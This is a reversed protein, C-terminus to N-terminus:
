NYRKKIESIIEDLRDQKTNKPVKIFYRKDTGNFPLSKNFVIAEEHSGCCGYTVGAYINAVEGVKHVKGNYDKHKAIIVVKDGLLFDDIVKGKALKIM